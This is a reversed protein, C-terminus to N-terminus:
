AALISRYMSLQSIKYINTSVYSPSDAVEDLYAEQASDDQAPLEEFIFPDFYRGLMVDQRIYAVLQRREDSFESQVSSIFIKKRSISM